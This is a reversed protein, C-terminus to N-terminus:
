KHKQWLNHILLMESLVACNRCECGLFGSHVLHFCLFSNTKWFGGAGSLAESDSQFYWQLSILHEFFEAAPHSPINIKCIYGTNILYSGLSTIGQPCHKYRIWCSVLTSNDNMKPFSTSVHRILFSQIWLVLQVALDATSHNVLPQACQPIFQGVYGARLLRLNQEPILSVKITPVTEWVQVCTLQKSEM